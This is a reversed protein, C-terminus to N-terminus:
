SQGRETVLLATHQGGSSISLVERNELQQGSMQVPNWVDEESGTSLQFNTGMGWAFARGDKSVAYSVSAGCAVGTIVPLGQIITPANKETGEEGLGLRGYEARGLSYVKGESDLCLTHHQGGAFKVWSKTSNKFATLKHASYCPATGSTGLQHYNSLGFGYVHGEKSIAFTCYAGCFVDCFRVKGSGKAKLHLSKPILLRELGRRGGRNTFCEAIRGLQGQEGCGSTYIDGDLSLLVLHDNGSTIKVIPVDLPVKQPFFCTKMPELLGIVGNNDRFSGWIYVQGVDTLAASHSDGASVQVVHENLVVRGPTMDSGDQSTDRGLAGEDNCGFTYVSGSVGLCITHMGGAEVQMVKETLLKVFAPKKREMVNEGLGLQGVDGQGLTLVIGPITRHSSHSIKLKKSEDGQTKEENDKSRKVSRKGPMTNQFDAKCSAM